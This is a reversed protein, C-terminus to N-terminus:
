AAVLGLLPEFMAHWPQRFLRRGGLTPQVLDLVVPKADEGM